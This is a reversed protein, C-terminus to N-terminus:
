GVASPWPNCRRGLVGLLGGLKSCWLLFELNKWRLKPCIRGQLQEPWFSLSIRSENEWVKFGVEWSVKNTKSWSPDLNQGSGTEKGAATWPWAGDDSVHIVEITELSDRQKEKCSHDIGLLLRFCCAILISASGRVSRSLVRWISWKESPFFGFGLFPGRPGVYDAVGEWRGVWVVRGREGRWKRGKGTSM